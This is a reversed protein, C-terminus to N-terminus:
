WNPGAGSRLVRILAEEITDSAQPPAADVMGRAEHAKYGLDRLASVVQAAMQGLAVEQRCQGRMPTAPTAAAIVPFGLPRETLPPALAHGTGSHGNSAAPPTSTKSQVQLQAHTAMMEQLAATTERM